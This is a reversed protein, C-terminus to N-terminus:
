DQVIAKYTDPNVTSLLQARALAAGHAALFVCGEQVTPQEPSTLERIRQTLLPKLNPTASLLVGNVQALTVGSKAMIETAERLVDAHEAQFAGVYPSIDVGRCIESYITTNAYYYGLFQTAASGRRQSAPSNKLRASAEAIAELRVAENESVGPHHALGDSELKQMTQEFTRTAQQANFQPPPSPQIYAKVVAGALVAAALGAYGIGKHSM